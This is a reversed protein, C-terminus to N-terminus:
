GEPADKMLRLLLDGLKKKSQPTVMGTMVAKELRAAGLKSSLLELIASELRKKLKTSAFLADTKKALEAPDTDGAFLARFFDKVDAAIDPDALLDATASALIGRTRASELGGKLTDKLESSGALGAVAETAFDRAAAQLEADAEAAKAWREYYADLTKDALAKSLKRDVEKSAAVTAPDKMASGVLDSVDAKAFIAGLRAEVDPAEVVAEVGRSIAQSVAPSEMAGGVHKEIKEQAEAENAATAAIAKLKAIVAPDAMVGKIIEDFRTKVAPDAITTSGLEQMAKAIEPEQFVKNWIADQKSKVAPDAFAKQVLDGSLKATRKEIDALDAASPSEAVVLARKASSCGKECGALLLCGIALAVRARNM